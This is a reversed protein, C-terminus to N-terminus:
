GKVKAALRSGGFRLLELNRGFGAAAGPAGSGATPETMLAVVGARTTAGYCFM